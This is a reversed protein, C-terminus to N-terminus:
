FSIGVSGRVHHRSGDQDMEGSYSVGWRIREWVAGSAGLAMEFGTRGQAPRGALTFPVGPASNFQAETPLGAASFDNVLTMRAYWSLGSAVAPIVELGVRGRIWAAIGADITLGLGGAGTEEFGARQTTYWGLSVVPLLRLQENSWADSRAELVMAADTTAFSGQATRLTDGVAVQRTSEARTSSVGVVGRLAVRGLEWHGYAGLQLTTGKVSSQREEMTLTETLSGAFVGARTRDRHLLEAGVTVGRLQFDAAATGHVRNGSIRGTGGQAVAWVQRGPEASEALGHHAGSVMGELRHSALAPLVGYVEGSLSNLAAYLKGVDGQGLSFLWEHVEGLDSGPADLTATLVAAVAQQNATAAASEFPKPELVLTLSGEELQGALFLAGGTGIEVNIASLDDAHVVGDIITYRGLNRYVGPAPVIRVTTGSQLYATGTVVLQDYDVGPVPNEAPRLEIVLEADEYQYYDQDRVGGGITLVGIGSGPSVKGNLVHVEADINGVGSLVGGTVRVGDSSKLHGDVALEGGGIEVQKINATTTFVWRGGSIAARDFGDIGQLQTTGSGTEAQKLELKSGSSGSSLEGNLRAGAYLTATAKTGAISVRGNVASTETLVLEVDDGDLVVDGSVEGANVVTIDGTSGSADVATGGVVDIVGKNVIRATESVAVALGVPKDTDSRSAATITGENTFEVEIGTGTQLRVGTASNATVDIEGTVNMVVPPIDAGPDDLAPDVGAAEYVLGEATDATAVLIQANVALRDGRGGTVYVGRGSSGDKESTVVVRGGLDSAVDSGAIRAGTLTRSAAAAEEDGGLVVIEGTSVLTTGGGLQIDLGTGVSVADRATAAYRGSVNVMSGDGATIVVATASSGGTVTTGGLVSVESGSGARIRVGVAESGDDRSEAEVAGAISVTSGAGGDISIGEAHSGASVTVDGDVQATGETAGGSQGFLLRVGYGESDAARATVRVDGSIVANGTADLRTYVGRALAGGSVTIDGSLAVRGGAGRSAVYVGDATSDGDEGTVTVDGRYDMNIQQLPRAYFDVDSGWVQYFAGAMIGAAYADATVEVNGTGSLTINATNNTSSPGITIGTALPGDASVLITGRQDITWAGQPMITIGDTSDGNTLTVEVTAGEAITLTGGNGSMAIAASPWGATGSLIVNGVNLLKHGTGTTSIAYLSSSSNGQLSVSLGDMVWGSGGQVLLEGILQVQHPNEAMIIVNSPVGFFRSWVNEQYEGDRIIIRDGSGASDVADAISEYQEGPGVYLDAAFAVGSSLVAVLLVTALTWRVLM